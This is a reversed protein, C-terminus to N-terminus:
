NKNDNYHEWLDLLTQKNFGFRVFYREMLYKDYNNLRDLAMGRLKSKVHAKTGYSADAFFQEKTQYYWLQDRKTRMYRMVPVFIFSFKAGEVDECLYHTASMDIITLLQGKYGFDEPPAVVKTGIIFQSKEM